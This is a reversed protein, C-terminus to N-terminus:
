DAAIRSLLLAVHLLHGSQDQRSEATEKEHL